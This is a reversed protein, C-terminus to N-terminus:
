RLTTILVEGGHDEWVDAVKEPEETIAFMAPGKGSLGAIAGAELAKAVPELDYGGLFSGYVLGNLVLAKEWEGMLALRFAEEVYPPALVKFNKNKLSSTLVTEEPILLVM